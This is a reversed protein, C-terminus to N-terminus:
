PWNLSSHLVAIIQLTDSSVRYIIIYPTGPLILERTGPVRGPRGRHPTENLMTVSSLIKNAITQASGPDSEAIYARINGLDDVAQRAWEIKM